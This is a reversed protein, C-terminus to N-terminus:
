VVLLPVRLGQYRSPDRTVVLGRVAAAEHVVHRTSLDGSWGGIEIAAYETLPLSQVGGTLLIPDWGGRGAAVVEEASAIATVPLLVQLWGAEAQDLLQGLERHGGFLDVLASSDLVRPPRLRM